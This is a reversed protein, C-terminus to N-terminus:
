EGGSTTLFEAAVDRVPRHEGDVQYNLKQMRGTSLKGSLEALAERLGSNATLAAGRVVLAAEYPPFYSKDDRLAKLGM